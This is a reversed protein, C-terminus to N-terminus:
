VILHDGRKLQSAESKPAVDRGYVIDSLDVALRDECVETKWRLFRIRLQDDQHLYWELDQIAM